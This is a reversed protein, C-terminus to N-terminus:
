KSRRARSHLNPFFNSRQLSSAVSTAPIRSVSHSVNLFQRRLIHEGCPRLSANCIPVTVIGENILPPTWTQMSGVSKSRVVFLSENQRRLLEACVKRGSLSAVPTCNNSEGIRQWALRGKLGSKFCFYEGDRPSAKMDLCVCIPMSLSRICRKLTARGCISVTSADCSRLDM